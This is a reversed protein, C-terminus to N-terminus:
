APAPELEILSRVGRSGAAFVKAKAPNVQLVTIVPVRHAAAWSRLAAIEAVAPALGDLALPGERYEEQADIIVLVSDDAILGPRPLGAIDRLTRPEAPVPIVPACIAAALCLFQIPSM